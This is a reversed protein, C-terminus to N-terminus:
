VRFLHLNHKSVFRRELYLLPLPSPSSVIIIKVLAHTAKERFSSHTISVERPNERQIAEKVKTLLSPM